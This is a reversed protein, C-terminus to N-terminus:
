LEGAKKLLMAYDEEKVQSLKEAGFSAILARIDKGQKKKEALVARVDQITPKDEEFPVEEQEAEAVPKEEKVKPVEVAKKEIRRVPVKIEKGALKGAFDVMEEYTDFTLEIKM